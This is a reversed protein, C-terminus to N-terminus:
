AIAAVISYLPERAHYKVNIKDYLIEELYGIVLTAYLPVFKTGM